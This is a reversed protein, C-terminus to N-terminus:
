TTIEPPTDLTQMNLWTTVNNDITSEPPRGNVRNGNRPAQEAARIIWNRWTAPWNAKRGKAGATSQWYNTFKEHEAKLNVHPFRQSMEAITDNDPIWNDPLRTGRAAPASQAVPLNPPDGGPGGEVLAVTVDPDKDLDKDRDLPRDEAALMEKEAPPQPIEAVIRPFEAVPTPGDCEVSAFESTLDWIEGENPSALESKPNFNKSQHDKFTPIQFYNRSSVRYFVVGYCKQVEALIEGFSAWTGCSGASIGRSAACIGCRRRPLASIDDNPFAFGELEKLSFTGRGSDDAWNWMAMFLLRPALDASATNPSGWFRPKLNRIRGAM